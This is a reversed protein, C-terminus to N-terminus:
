EALHTLLIRAGICLLICGGLVEAWRGWLSGLRAGLGFGVASLGAAVLGIVVAPLWISIGVLALSLGVALADLSTAVSLTVLMLGRTPDDSRSPRDPARAEWLMKGGLLTLLGFAVWHDYNSISDALPQGAAWGIVPMLFQFLGFHFALRFMSRFTAPRVVLGASVAVAFADMALAVAIACLWLWGM